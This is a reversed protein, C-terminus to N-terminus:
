QKQSRYPVASRPWEYPKDADLCNGVKVLSVGLDAIVQDCSAIPGQWIVGAVIAGGVVAGTVAAMLLNVASILEIRNRM